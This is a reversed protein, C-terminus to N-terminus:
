SLKTNEKKKLKFLLSEVSSNLAYYVNANDPIVLEAGNSLVQVLVYESPDGEMDRKELCTRIVGPTREDDSLWIGRYIVGGAKKDELGEISVRIICGAHASKGSPSPPQPLRVPLSRRTIGTKNIRPPTCDPVAPLARRPLSFSSAKTVSVDSGSSVGSSTSSASSGSNNREHRRPMVPSNENSKCPKDNAPPSLSQSSFQTMLSLKSIDPESLMRRMTPRVGKKKTYKLEIREVKCSLHYSESESFIKINNFWRRFAEDSVIIYNKAAEQLLKIQAIIEFEKRRKEFNILGDETLDPLATDLMMLDTLFTGLYPVTGQIIGLDMFRSKRKKLNPVKKTPSSDLQAWKATGEKMLLERSSQQNSDESFINSLENFLAYIDKSVHSWSKKLRHIPASQLGSLIAKLSSFNKLDRCEQAVNIWRAIYKGRTNPGSTKSNSCTLISSIVRLSVANFQDVTAKVTEAKGEKKNKGWVCGLCHWAIVRKFLKADMATLQAACENPPISLLDMKSDTEEPIACMKDNVGHNFKPSVPLQCTVIDFDEDEYPTIQFKDLRLKIKKALDEGHGVRMESTVFSLIRNLTTYNPSDDFDFSFNELWVNFVSAVGRLVRDVVEEKEQADNRLFQWYREFLLEAIQPANAFTRYTNLFAILYGPDIEELPATSPALHEVLKALSGAKITRVRMTEWLLYSIDEDASPPLKDSSRYRVKKLSVSYIAEDEREEKWFVKQNPTQSRPLDQAPMM